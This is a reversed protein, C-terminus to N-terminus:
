PRTRANRVAPILPHTDSLEVVNGDQSVLFFHQDEVVLVFSIQREMAVVVDMPSLQWGKANTRVVLLPDDLESATRLHQVHRKFVVSGIPQGTIRIISQWQDYGLSVFDPLPQTLGGFVHIVEGEPPLAAVRFRGAALSDANLDKFRAYMQSAAVASLIRADDEIYTNFPHNTYETIEGLSNVRVQQYIEMKYFSTFKGFTFEWGGNGDSVSSYVQNPVKMGTEQKVRENAADLARFYGFLAKGTDSVWELYEAKTMNMAYKEQAMCVGATGWWLLGVVCCRLWNRM